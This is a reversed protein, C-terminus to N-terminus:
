REQSPSFPICLSSWVGLELQPMRVHSADQSTKSEEDVLISPQHGRNLCLAIEREKVDHESAVLAGDDPHTQSVDRLKSCTEHDSEVNKRAFHADKCTMNRSESICKPFANEWTTNCLDSTSSSDLTLHADGYTTDRRESISNSNSRVLGPGESEVKHIEALHLSKSHAGRRAEYRGDAQESLRPQPPISHSLAKDRWDEDIMLGFDEPVEPPPSLRRYLEFRMRDDHKYTTLRVSTNKQFKDDTPPSKLSEREPILFTGAQGLGSNELSRDSAKERLTDDTLPADLNRHQSMLPADVLDNGAYESFVSQGEQVHM